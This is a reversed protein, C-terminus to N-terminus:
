PSGRRARDTSLFVGAGARSVVSGPHCQATNGTCFWTVLRTLKAHRRPSEVDGHFEVLRRRCFLGQAVGGENRIKMIGPAHFTNLGSVAVKGNDAAQNLFAHPDFVDTNRNREQDIPNPRLIALRELYTYFKCL